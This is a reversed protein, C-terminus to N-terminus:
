LSLKNEIEIQLDQSLTDKYLNLIDLAADRDLGLSANGELEAIIEDVSSYKGALELIKWRMM